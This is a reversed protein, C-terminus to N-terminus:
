RGIHFIYSLTLTGKKIGSLDIYDAVLTLDSRL